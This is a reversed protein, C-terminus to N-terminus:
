GPRRRVVLLLIIVLLLIVILAGLGMLWLAWNPMGSLPAERIITTTTTLPPLSAQPTTPSSVPAPETTFASIASWASYSGTGGARVRWYYTTDYDLSVDIQWATAPVASDGTMAIVPNALSVEASVLLEYREAGAMASWQFIPRLPVGTAGAAPSLLEPAVVAEGLTTAFSWKASWPSSVPETARVRWFYTTGMELAPLRVSTEETNGEFGSPVSSFDNDYDIQWQYKTAGKLSTWSLRVNGPEVGAAKDSPSTLMVPGTLTDLYTMLRTNKTDLSWLQKGVVWLGTLTTNDSLGRIVTEFTAGPAHTPNLSRELGGEKETNDVAQSSTAYLLGEASAALQNVMSGVPLTNDISEWAESRGVIFRFIRERSASTSAADSAAYVIKSSGFEPAFALGVQGVGTGSLPLQQGLCEFSTGNDSSWYVWGQTNGVLITGDTGHNPSLVISKLPQHGVAVGSSYFFGSNTTHYILGNIGDYGGLFLSNDDVVTWADIASPASHQTFSQGGDASKWIAAGGGGTGALFVVRSDSGYRPSLKVLDITDVSPRSSSFAREWRGGGDLTRWLSHEGGWTILFLANDQSYNPSVALDVIGGSTIETDILGTQNWTLGGDASYSFASDAGSTAAYAQHSSAFDPAMVLYTLSQGTPEKSSRKWTLGGDTSIYVQASGAAGALLYVEAGQGSIALGTVDVNGLNYASGINLDTVISSIPSWRGDIRYVDGHGSGDDLGVFLAQGETTADYGEPFAITAGRAAVSKITANGCPKGWDGNSIRSSVITNTEDTVVAVLQRDTPYYPSFALAVVDCNGINTNQWRPLLESEDLVYVGGYQSSDSDRTGVAVIRSNGLRAVALSTIEINHGGAEGPNPPLPAFSAGGDGSRYVGAATAYYVLSADDPATVIGVVADQVNGTPSWSYGGDKSKFLTDSTESPTAYGYLTGDIALTLYRVDSGSALVWKGTAGQAPINVKSWRVEDPAAHVPRGSSIAPILGFLLTLALVAATVRSRAVHRIKAKTIFSTLGM